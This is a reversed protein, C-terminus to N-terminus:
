SLTLKRIKEMVLQRPSCEGVEWSGITTANVGMIKGFEKQSLGNKYRYEKIKGGLTNTDIEWPFSGLFSILQPFYQIQPESNGNEWNAVTEESVSFLQALEKQFLHKELRMNRIIDGLSQPSAIYRDGLPKKVTTNMSYFPLAPIDM